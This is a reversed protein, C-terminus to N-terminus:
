MRSEWSSRSQSGALQRASLVLVRHGILPFDQEIEFSRVAKHALLSEMVERLRSTDWCGNSISFLLQGETERPSILFARYFSQNATKIRLDRDLVLLPATTTEIISVAFDRAETLAANTSRLEENVTVLKLNTSELQEKATELEENLSRLEENASIAEEVVSQNEEWSSRNAEIIPLFRERTDALDRKLITIERDRHDAGSAEKTDSGIARPEFLILFARTPSGDLPIVEINVDGAAVGAGYSVRDKRAAEDGQQVDRVLKEVEAFMTEPVVNWLNFRAGSPLTLYSPAQGITELVALSKDVILGFGRYRSLLRREMEEQLDIGDALAGAPIREAERTNPLCPSAAGSSLRHAKGATDNKAHIGHAAEVTSFLDGPGRQAPGLLLFGGPNLAYHFLRFVTERMGGSLSMPNRCSILDLRSFPPDQILDHRSFVCMERLAQTVQYGEGVKSFFRNLREPGVDAATSEPYRGRRAGEVAAASIDTAFIQIPYVRGTEQLFEELSIATSYVDEGSACGPVWIRIAAGAPRGQVVRPFVLNKLGEFYKSGGFFRATATFPDRHLHSLHSLHRGLKTLEAAIAEPSFVADVYGSGIAVHPIDGCKPTKADQAFTVGGAAKVAELGAAGDTGAGSLIVGIARSGCEQALSRLFRDIPMHSLMPGRPMTRLTREAIEWGADPPIVYIHDPEVGLGDTAQQVPMASVGALIETLNNDHNPELHQVFVFALGTTAPLNALLSRVAELGGTSTGIGVVPVIM